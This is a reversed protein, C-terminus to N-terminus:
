AAPDALSVRRRKGNRDVEEIVGPEIKMVMKSFFVM